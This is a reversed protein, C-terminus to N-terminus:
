LIEIYKAYKDRGPCHRHTELEEIYNRAANSGQAFALQQHGPFSPPNHFRLKSSNSM